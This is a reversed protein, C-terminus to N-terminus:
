TSAQLSISTRSPPNRHTCTCHSVSQIGSGIHATGCCSSGWGGKGAVRVEMCCHETSTVWLPAFTGRATSSQTRARARGSPTLTPKCARPGQQISLPHMHWDWMLWAHSNDRCVDPPSHARDSRVSAACLQWFAMLGKQAYLTCGESGRNLTQADHREYQLM